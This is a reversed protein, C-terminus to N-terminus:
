VPLTSLIDDLRRLVHPWSYCNEVLGRGAAGLRAREGHDRLLRIVSEAFHAPNDAVLAHEGPILEIGECGISTTVIPLGMAMADLIKVRIGSGIRLPVVFAGTGDLAARIDDVYGTVEISSDRSALSRIEPPPNAGIVTFRAEPLESKIRPYISEIFYRVADANPPWSMTGLTTVKGFELFLPIPRLRETDVGVPLAFVKEPPIGNAIFTERDQPTVTLVIDARRCAGLEYARLKRWELAAFLRRAPSRDASAFREIIRWEVNHDDLLVPCPPPDPVFQFMQLHDVYILDPKHSIFELVKSRM